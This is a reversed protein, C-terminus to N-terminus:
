QKIKNDKKLELCNLEDIQSGPFTALKQVTTSFDVLLCCSFVFLRETMLKELVGAEGVSSVGLLGHKLWIM